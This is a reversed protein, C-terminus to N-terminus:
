GIAMSVTFTDGNNVTIPSDLVERAIMVTPVATYHMKVFLGFEKITLESNGGYRLTQSLLLVNDVGQSNSNTASHAIITFNSDNIYSALDYDNANAPTDGSGFAFTSNGAATGADLAAVTLAGFYNNALYAGNYGQYDAPISTGARNIYQAKYASSVGTASILWRRYNNVLM